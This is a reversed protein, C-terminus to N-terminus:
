PDKELKIPSAGMIFNKKEFKIEKRMMAHVAIIIPRLDLLRM